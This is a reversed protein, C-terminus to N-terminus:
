QRDIPRWPSEPRPGSSYDDSDLDITPGRGSPRAFGGAFGSFSTVQVRRRLFRWAMDRVPPLFLLLGIIDTFFGPVILLVGALLVMVGHALERGPDKGAELERQLKTLLGLGQVRMLMSGVIASLLVLGITALVGIQSGVLVFGAIEILPLVLIFLPVLRKLRYCVRKKRGRSQPQCM